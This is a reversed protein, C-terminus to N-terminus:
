GQEELYKCFTLYPSDDSKFYRLLEPDQLCLARVKEPHNEVFTRLITVVSKTQKPLPYKENYLIAALERHTGGSAKKKLAELKLEESLPPRGLRKAPRPKDNNVEEEPPKIWHKLEESLASRPGPSRRMVYVLRDWYNSPLKHLTETPPGSCLADVMEEWLGEPMPPGDDDDDPQRSSAKTLEPPIIHNTLAAFFRDWPTGSARAQMLSRVYETFPPFLKVYAKPQTQCESNAGKPV